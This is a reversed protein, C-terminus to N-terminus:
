IKIFSFTKDTPAHMFNLQLITFRGGRVAIDLNSYIWKIAGSSNKSSGSLQIWYGFLQSRM